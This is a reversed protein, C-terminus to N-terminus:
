VCDTPTRPGPHGTTSDVVFVEARVCSKANSLMNGRSFPQGRSPRSRFPATADDADRVMVIHATKVDRQGDKAYTLEAWVTSCNYSAILRVWGIDRGERDRVRPFSQDEVPEASRSCASAEPANGDYASTYNPIPKLGQVLVLGALVTLATPVALAVVRWGTATPGWTPARGELAARRSAARTIVVWMGPACVLVVVLVLAAVVAWVPVNPQRLAFSGVVTGALAAYAQLLTAVFHGEGGVGENLAMPQKSRPDLLPGPAGVSTLDHLGSSADKVSRHEARNRSSVRRSLLAAVLLAPLVARTRGTGTAPMRRLM